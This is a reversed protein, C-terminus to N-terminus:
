LLEKFKLSGLKLTNIVCYHVVGAMPMHYFQLMSVKQIYLIGKQYENCNKTKDYQGLRICM